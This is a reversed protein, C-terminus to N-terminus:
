NSESILKEIFKGQEFRKGHAKTAQYLSKLLNNINKNEIKIAVENFWDIFFAFNGIIFMESKEDLFNSDVKVMDELRNTFVKAVSKADHTYQNFISKALDEHVIADVIFKKDTISQSVGTVTGKKSKKLAEKFSNRPQVGTLRSGRPQGAVEKWLEEIAEAGTYVTIPGLRLIPSLVPTYVRNKVSYFKRKGKHSINLWNNEHLSDLCYEVTSRPLMLRRSIEALTGPLEL